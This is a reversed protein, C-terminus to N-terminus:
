KSMEFSCEIKTAWLLKNIVYTLNTVATKRVIQCRQPPPLMLKAPSPLM